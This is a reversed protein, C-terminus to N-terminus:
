KKLNYFSSHHEFANCLSSVRSATGTAFYQGTVLDATSSVGLFKGASADSPRNEALYVCTGPKSICFKFPFDDSQAYLSLTDDYTCHCLTVWHRVLGLLDAEAGSSGFARNNLILRLLAALVPKQHGYFTNNFYSCIGSIKALTL